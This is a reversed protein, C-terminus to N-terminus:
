IRYVIGVTCTNSVYDLIRVLTRCAAYTPSNSFLRACANVAFAIDPRSNVALYLLLLSGLLEQYPFLADLYEQQKATRKEERTLKLDRTMPLTARHRTGPKLYRVDEEHYLIVVRYSM